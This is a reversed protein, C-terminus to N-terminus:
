ETTDLQKCDWSSCGGGPEETWPLIRWALISYQTAMGKEMLMYRNSLFELHFTFDNGFVFKGNNHPVGNTPQAAVRLNNEFSRKWEFLVYDGIDGNLPVFYFNYM